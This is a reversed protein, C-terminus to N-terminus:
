VCDGYAELFRNISNDKKSTLNGLEPEVNNIKPNKAPEIVQSVLVVNTALKVSDVLNVSDVPNVNLAQM